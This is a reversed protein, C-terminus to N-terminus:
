AHTYVNSKSLLTLNKLENSSKNKESFTTGYNQNQYEKTFLHFEVNTIMWYLIKSLKTSIFVWTHLTIWWVNHYKILIQGYRNIRM